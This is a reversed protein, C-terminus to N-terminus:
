QLDIGRNLYDLARAKRYPNPWEIAEIVAQPTCGKQAARERAIKCNRLATEHCQREMTDLARQLDPPIIDAGDPDANIVMTHPNSGDADSTIFLDDLDASNMHMTLEEHTLGTKLMVRKILRAVIPQLNYTYADALDRSDLDVVDFTLLRLLELCQTHLPEPLQNRVRYLHLKCITSVPWDSDGSGDSSNKRASYAINLSTCLDKFRQEDLQQLTSRYVYPTGPTQLITEIADFRNSGKLKQHKIAFSTLQRRYRRVLQHWLQDLNTVRQHKLQFRKGVGAPPLFRDGQSRNVSAPLLTLNELEFSGGAKCPILHAVDIATKTMFALKGRKCHLGYVEYIDFNDGLCDISGHRAIQQLLWTVFDSHRLKDLPSLEPAAAASKLRTEHRLKDTQAEHREAAKRCAPCCFQKDTRGTVPKKCWLCRRRKVTCKPKTPTTM